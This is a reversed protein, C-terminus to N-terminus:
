IEVRILHIESIYAYFEGRGLDKGIAQCLEDKMEELGNRLNKLQQIRFEISRTGNTRYAKKIEDAGAGKSIGLIEYYDRKAM